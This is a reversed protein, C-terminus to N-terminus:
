ENQKSQKYPIIRLKHFDDCSILMSENLNSSDAVNLTASINQMCVNIKAMGKVHM